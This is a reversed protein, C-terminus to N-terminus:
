GIHQTDWAPPNQCYVKGTFGAMNGQYGIMEQRERDCGWAFRLDVDYERCVRALDREVHSPMAPRAHNQDNLESYQLRFEM